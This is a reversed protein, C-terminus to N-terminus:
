RNDYKSPPSIGSTLVRRTEELMSLAYECIENTVDVQLEVRKTRDFVVIARKVKKQLNEEALITLLGLQTKLTPGVEVYDSYKREIIIIEESTEIAEDIKGTFLHSKSFLQVETLKKGEIGKPFYNLNTSAHRSHFSRGAQVTGRKEENQKLNLVLQYYTFKPCFAHEVVNTITLFSSM